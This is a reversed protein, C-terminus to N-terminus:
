GETLRHSMTFDLGYWNNHKSTQQGQFKFTHNSFSM